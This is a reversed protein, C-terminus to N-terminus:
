IQKCLLAVTVIVGALQTSPAVLLFNQWVSCHQQLPYRPITPGSMRPQWTSYSRHPPPPAATNGARSFINQGLSLTRGKNGLYSSGQLVQTVTYTRPYPNICESVHGSYLRTVKGTWSEEHTQQAFCFAELTRVPKIQLVSIHVHFIYHVVSTRMMQWAHFMSSSHNVCSREIRFILTRTEQRHDSIRNSEVLTYM